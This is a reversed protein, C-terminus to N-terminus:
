CTEDPRQEVQVSGLDFSDVLSSPIVRMGAREFNGPRGSPLVAGTLIDIEQQWEDAMRGAITEIIDWVDTTAFPFWVLAVERGAENGEYITFKVPFNQPTM